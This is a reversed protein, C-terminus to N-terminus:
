LGASARRRYWAAMIPACSIAMLLRIVQVALVFTVDSGAESAVALIAWLGGPTTALYGDLSSVGIMQAMFHGAIACAITIAIILGVALPLIRAIARLSARDFQLGVGIGISLYGLITIPWPVAVPGLLGSISIVASIILPWLLLGGSFRLFRAFLMGIATAALVFVASQWGGAQVTEAVEGTTAPHFIFSTVIPMVTVVGLVRTYQVISVVRADAGLENAAATIGAAGGAIMAFSGTAPSVDPHLALLKGAFISLVITLLCVSLTAFWHDGIAMLTPLDVMVGMGVGILAQGTMYAPRPLRLVGFRGWVAFILSGFLSGFLAPSPLHILAFLTWSAAIMAALVLWALWKPRAPKTPHM